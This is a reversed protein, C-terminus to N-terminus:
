RSDEDPLKRVDSYRWAVREAMASSESKVQLQLPRGFMLTTSTKGAFRRTVEMPGDGAALIQRWPILKVRNAPFAIGDASLEAFVLPRILQLIGGATLVVGFMLPLWLAGSPLKADSLLVYGLCLAGFFLLLVASTRRMRLIETPPSTAM